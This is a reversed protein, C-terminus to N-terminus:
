RSANDVERQLSHLARSLLSKVTGPRCGLANAIDRESMDEVYRLVVAARQRPSLCALSQWIAVEEDVPRTESAANLEGLATRIAHMGRAPTPRNDPGSSM